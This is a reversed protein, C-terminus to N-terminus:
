ESSPSFGLSSQTQRWTEWAVTELYRATEEDLTATANMRMHEFMWKAMKAPHADPKFAALRADDAEHKGHPWVHFTRPLKGLPSEGTLAAYFCALIHHCCSPPSSTKCRPPTDPVCRVRGHKLPM